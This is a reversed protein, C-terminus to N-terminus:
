EAMKRLQKKVSGSYVAPQNLIIPREAGRVGVTFRFVKTTDGRQWVWPVGSKSLSLPKADGRWYGDNLVPSPDEVLAVAESGSVDEIFVRTVELTTSLGFTFVLRGEIIEFGAVEIKVGRSEAPLPVGEEVEAIIKEGGLVIFQQPKASAVAALCILFLLFSLRRM